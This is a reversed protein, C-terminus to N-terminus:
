LLVYFLFLVCSLLSSVQHWKPLTLKKKFFGFFSSSLSQPTAVVIAVFFVFVFCHGKLNFFV